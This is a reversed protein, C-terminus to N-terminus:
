QYPDLSRSLRELVERDVHPQPEGEEEVLAPLTSHGVSGPGLIEKVKCISARARTLMASPVERPHRSM